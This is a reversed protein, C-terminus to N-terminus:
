SRSCASGIVLPTPRAFASTHITKSHAASAGLYEDKLRANEILLRQKESLPDSPLTKGGCTICSQTLMAHRLTQNESQLSANGQQIHKNEEVQAKKPMQSRRNQFWIKVQKPELGLREAIEQQAKADPHTCQEYLAMLEQVHHPPLRKSKVPEKSQKRGPIYDEDEPDTHSSNGEDGVDEQYDNGITENVQQGGKEM